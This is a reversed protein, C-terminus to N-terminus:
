LKTVLDKLSAGVNNMGEIAREILRMHEVHQETAERINAMAVNVQSVGVLQQESSLAIQSSAESVKNIGESLSQISIGIQNSMEVGNNVAKTGEETAMVAASTANQIDSLISRVQITAQKSQEALSRVEQAVVSFGKGQEGAKAAEIAANVALLHSQEALENVSDIIKGISQSHESLKIISESITSMGNQIHLMGEITKELNKEGTNLINIADNSVEAVKKAKDAAIEATQKLEEVTTTTETVSAATESTGSSAESISTKIENGATSLIIIEEQLKKVISKFSAGLLIAAIVVGMSVLILISFFEIVKAYKLKEGRIKSEELLKNQVSQLDFIRKSQSDWIATLSRKQMGNEYLSLANQFSKNTDTRSDGHVTTRYLEDQKDTGNEFYITQFAQQKGVSLTFELLNNQDKEKKAAAMIMLRREVSIANKEHLIALYGFLTRSIELDYISRGMENIQTFFKMEFENYIEKIKSDELVGASLQKRFDSVESFKEFLPSFFDTLSIQNYERILVKFKRFGEDTKNIAQQLRDPDFGEVKSQNLLAISREEVVDNLIKGGADYLQILQLDNEMEKIMRYDQWLITGVFYFMVLFPISCILALRYKMKMSGFLHAM